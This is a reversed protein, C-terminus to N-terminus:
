SAARTRFRRCMAGSRNRLAHLPGRNEDYLIDGIVRSDAVAASGGRVVQVSGGVRSADLVRVTRANEGQVNGIVLVRNAILQANREVKITGKVQTGNLRCVADPPVRVNDLTAAGITGRCIREEATVAVPSLLTPELLWCRHM